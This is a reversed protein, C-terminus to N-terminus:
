IKEIGMMKALDYILPPKWFEMSLSKIIGFIWVILIALSYLGNIITAIIWGAFPVFGLILGIIQVIMLGIIMIVFFSISLYAWYKVYKSSPKLILAIIAGIISIIWAILGWIKEEDTVQSLVVAVIESNKFSYLYKSIIFLYSDGLVKTNYIILLKQLIELFGLFMILM